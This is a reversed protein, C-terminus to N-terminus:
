YKLGYVPGRHLDANASFPSGQIILTKVKSEVYLLNAECRARKKKGLGALQLQDNVGFSLM